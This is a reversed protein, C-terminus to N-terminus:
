EAGKGDSGRSLVVERAKATREAVLQECAFTLRREGFEELYKHIVANRDLSAPSGGEVLAVQYLLEAFAERARAIADPNRGNRILQTVERQIRDEHLKVQQSLERRIILLNSQESRLSDIEAKHAILAGKLSKLDLSLHHADREDGKAAIGESIGLNLLTLQREIESLRESKLAIADQQRGILMPLQEIRQQVRSLKQKSQEYEGSITM